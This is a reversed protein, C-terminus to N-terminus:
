LSPLLYDVDLRTKIHMARTFCDNTFHISCIGFQSKPNFNKRHMDVFKKWKLRGCVRLPSNHISICADLDTENDCDQVCSRWPPM